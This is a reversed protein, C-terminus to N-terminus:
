DRIARAERWLTSFAFYLIAFFLLANVITLLALLIFIASANADNIDTTVLPGLKLYGGSNLKAYIHDDEDDYALDYSKLQEKVDDSFHDPKEIYALRFHFHSQLEQLV